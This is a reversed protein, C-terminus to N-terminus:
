HSKHSVHRSTGDQGQGSSKSLSTTPFQLEEALAALRQSNDFDVAGATKVRLVRNLTLDIGCPQIQLTESTVNRLLGMQFARAGPIIM